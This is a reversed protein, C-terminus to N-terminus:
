VTTDAATPVARPAVYLYNPVRKVLLTMEYSVQGVDGEGDVLVSLLAGEGAAMVFLHGQDLEVVVQRVGGAGGLLPVAGLALSHLGSAIASLTDATGDEDFNLSSVQMGDRSTVLASRAGATREIFDTLLWSLDHTTTAM